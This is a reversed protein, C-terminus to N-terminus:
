FFFHEIVTDDLFFLMQMQQVDSNYEYLPRCVKAWHQEKRIFSFQNGSMVKSKLNYVM